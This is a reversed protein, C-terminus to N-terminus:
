EVSLSLVRLWGMVQFGSLIPYGKKPQQQQLSELPARCFGIFKAEGGRKRCHMVRVGIQLNTIEGKPKGLDIVSEDWKGERQNM